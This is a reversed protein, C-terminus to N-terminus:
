AGDSNTAPLVSIAAFNHLNTFGTGDAKLAFVTGSGNTGGYGATGYLINGSLFLTASPYAGDSNTGGQYYPVSYATFNHLNTFRTGDTNLAFVTGSGNTGGGTATGYLTNGSIILGAWPFAGESNTSLPGATATFNHLNTFLTGDTNVRFVTGCGSSGGEYTTGYLNTGSLLLSARPAAGDSNTGSVYATFSHLNTFGTGDTNLAFVTGNGNTGGGAATGYLTNGSITLGAKPSAGDSNTIGFSAFDISELAFSHLTTFTQAAAPRAPLLNLAAILAPLLFRNKINTKM